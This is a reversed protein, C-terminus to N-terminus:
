HGYTKKFSGMVILTGKYDFAPMGWKVSEVVQPCAEHILERMYILIPQAFEQANDIYLDIKPDRM